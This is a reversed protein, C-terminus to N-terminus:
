AEGLIGERGSNARASDVGGSLGIVVGNAEADEVVGRIFQTVDDTM